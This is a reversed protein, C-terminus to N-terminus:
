FPLVNTTIGDEELLVSHKELGLLKMTITFKLEEETLSDGDEKFLKNNLVAKNAAKRKLTNIRKTTKDLKSM